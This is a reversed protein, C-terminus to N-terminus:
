HMNLKHHVGSGAPQVVGFDDNEDVDDGMDTFLNKEPTYEAKTLPRDTDLRESNIDTTLRDNVQYRHKDIPSPSEWKNDSQKISSLEATINHADPETILLKRETTPPVDFYGDDEHTQLPM